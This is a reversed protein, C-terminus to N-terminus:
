SWDSSVVVFAVIAAAILMGALGATSAFSAAQRASYGARRRLGFTVVAGAVGGGFFGAIAFGFGVMSLLAVGVTALTLRGVRPERTVEVRGSAVRLESDDAALVGPSFSQTM